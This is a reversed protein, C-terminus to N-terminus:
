IHTFFLSLKIIFLYIIFFVIFFSFIGFEKKEINM